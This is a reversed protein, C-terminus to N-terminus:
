PVSVFQKLWNCFKVLASDYVTIVRDNVCHSVIELGTQIIKKTRDVWLGTSEDLSWEPFNQM